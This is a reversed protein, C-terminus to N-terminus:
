LLNVISKLKSRRKQTTIGMQLQPGGQCSCLNSTFQKRAAVYFVLGSSGTFRAIPLPFTKGRVSVTLAVKDSNHIPLWDAFTNVEEKMIPQRHTEAQVM